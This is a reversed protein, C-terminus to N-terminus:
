DGADLDVEFEGDATRRGALAAARRHEVTPYPLLPGGRGRRLERPPTGDQALFGHVGDSVAHAPDDTDLVLVRRRMRGLVLAANLGAPGAGVILVDFPRQIM